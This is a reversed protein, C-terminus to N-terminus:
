LRLSGFFIVGVFLRLIIQIKAVYPNLEEQGCKSMMAPNLKQSCLSPFLAVCLGCITSIWNGLLFPSALSSVLYVGLHTVRHGCM